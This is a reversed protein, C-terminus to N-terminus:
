LSQSFGRPRWLGVSTRRLTVQGTLMSSLVVCQRESACPKPLSIMSAQLNLSAAHSLRPTNYIAPNFSLRWYSDTPPERSSRTWYMYYCTGKRHIKESKHLTPKLTAERTLWVEIQNEQGARSSHQHICSNSDGSLHNETQKETANDHPHDDCM